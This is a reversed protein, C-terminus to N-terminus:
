IPKRPAEPSFSGGLALVSKSWGAGPVLLTVLADVPRSAPAVKTVGARTAARATPSSAQAAALTAILRPYDLRVEVTGPLETRLGGRRTFSLDM